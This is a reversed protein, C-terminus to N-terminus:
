NQNESIILETKYWVLPRFKIIWCKPEHRKVVETEYGQQTLGDARM